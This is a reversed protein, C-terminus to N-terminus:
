HLSLGAPLGCCWFFEVNLRLFISLLMLLVAISGLSAILLLASTEM